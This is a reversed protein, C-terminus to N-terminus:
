IDVYRNRLSDYTGHVALYVEFLHDACAHPLLTSTDPESVAATLRLKFRTAHPCSAVHHCGAVTSQRRAYPPAGNM